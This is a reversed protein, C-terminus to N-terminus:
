SDIPAPPGTPTLTFPAALSAAPVGGCGGAFRFSLWGSLTVADWSYTVRSPLTTGDDCSIADTRDVFMTWHGVSLHADSQWPAYKGGTQAVHVCPIFPQAQNPDTVCPAVAWTAPEGGALVMSYTGTFDDASAPSAFGGAAIGALIASVAIGGAIKM